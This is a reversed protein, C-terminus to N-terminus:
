TALRKPVKPPTKTGLTKVIRPMMRKKLTPQTTPLAPRVFASIIITMAFRIVSAVPKEIDAIAVFASGMALSRAGSNKQLYDTATGACITKISILVLFILIYITKMIM